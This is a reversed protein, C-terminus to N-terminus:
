QPCRYAEIVGVYDVVRVGKPMRVYWHFDVGMQAFWPTPLEIDANLGMIFNGIAADGPQAIDVRIFNQGRATARFLDYREYETLSAVWGFVDNHTGKVWGIREHADDGFIDTLCDNKGWEM